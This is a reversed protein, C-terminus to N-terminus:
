DKKGNPHCEACRNAVDFINKEAHKQETKAKDHCNYCTYNPTKAPHCRSCQGKAGKHDMPFTHGSVSIDSWNSTNHCKSCQGSWHDAPRNHCSQCDTLGTHDFRAPKWASTNHCNSCQGSYHNAPRNHCSQCDTLGTHDFRAPKWASTNHCNSCQGSYHNAPRNHCAQCDRAGAVEHNFGAPKWARTNHCASCQGNFHNAPRRHCSQCDRAGAVEHNFRAPKWAQTSHCASCQGAYHNAPKDRNHCAACDRAGALKHDFHIDKWSALTHCSACDGQYHNAPLVNRHCAICDRPTGAFQGAQHCQECQLNGHGDVLPFFAHEAGGSGPPFIVLHPDITAIATATAGPTGQPQLAMPVTGQPSSASPNSLAQVLGVLARLTAVQAKFAVVLDPAEKISVNLYALSTDIQAVVQSLHAILLPLDSPPAEGMAAEARDLAQDLIQLALTEQETGALAALDLARRETLSLYYQARETSNLTLLAGQDEAFRQVPFLLNGPRFPAASALYVGVSTSFLTLLFVILLSLALFKRM